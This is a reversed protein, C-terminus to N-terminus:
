LARSRILVSTHRSTGVRNYMALMPVPNTLFDVKRCQALAHFPHGGQSSRRHRICVFVSIQVNTEPSTRAASEDARTREAALLQLPM